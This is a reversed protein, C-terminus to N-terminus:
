CSPRQDGRPVAVAVPVFAPPADRLLSRPPNRLRRLAAVLRPAATTLLAVVGGGGLFQQFVVGGGAPQIFPVQSPKVSNKGRFLTRDIYWGNTRTLVNSDTIEISSTAVVTSVQIWRIQVVTYCLPPDM